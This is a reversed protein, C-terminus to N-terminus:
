RRKTIEKLKDYARPFIKKFAIGTKGITRDLKLIIELFLLKNRLKNNEKKDIKFDRPNKYPNKKNFRIEEFQSLNKEWEKFFISKKHWPKCIKCYFHLIAIEQQRNSVLYYSNHSYPSYNYIRLLEKWSNYFFLNLTSQEVICQYKHYKLYLHKIKEFSDKKIVDKSFAFVGGNFGKLRLNYDTFLTKDEKKIKFQSELSKSSDKVAYFGTVEFLRNLSKRVIIDSDMYVINDWKKFYETFIYFKLLVMKTHEISWWSSKTTENFLKELEEKEFVDKFIKVKIGKKELSKIEKKPLHNSIIMYDGDFGSNLYISAFLQKANDLYKEDAITVILNKQM